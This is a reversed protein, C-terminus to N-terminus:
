VSHPTHFKLNRRLAVDNLGVLCSLLASCLGVKRCAGPMGPLLLLGSTRIERIVVQVLDSIARQDMRNYSYANVRIRM